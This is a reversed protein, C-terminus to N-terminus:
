RDGPIYDRQLCLDMFVKSPDIIIMDVSFSIVTSIPCTSGSGSSGPSTSGSGAGSGPCAFSVSSSEYYTMRTLPKYGEFGTFGKNKFIKNIIKIRRIISAM